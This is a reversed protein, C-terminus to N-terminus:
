GSSDALPERWIQFIMIAVILFAVFASQPTWSVFIGLLVDDTTLGLRLGTAIAAVILATAVIVLIVVRVQWRIRDPQMAILILCFPGLFYIALLLQSSSGWSTVAAFIMASVTTLFLLSRVSFQIKIPKHQEERREFEAIWINFRSSGIIGILGFCCGLLVGVLINWPLMAYNIMWGGYTEGERWIEWPFGIAGTPSGESKGLLRQIGGTRYFYSAANAAAVLLLGGTMGRGFWHWRSTGIKNERPM